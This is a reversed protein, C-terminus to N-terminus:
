TSLDSSLGVIFENLVTSFQRYKLQNLLLVEKILVNQKQEKLINTNAVDSRKSSDLVTLVSQYRADTKSVRSIKIFPHLDYKQRHKKYFFVDHYKKNFFFM